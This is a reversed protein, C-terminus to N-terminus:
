INALLSYHTGAFIYSFFAIIATVSKWIIAIKFTLQKSLPMIELLIHAWNCWMVSPIPNPHSTPHIEREREGESVRHGRRERHTHTHTHKERDREREWDREGERRAGGSAVGRTIRGRGVEWGFFSFIRPSWKRETADAQRDTAHPFSNICCDGENTDGPPHRPYMLTVQLLSLPYWMDWERVSM